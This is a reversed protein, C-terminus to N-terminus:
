AKTSISSCHCAARQLGPTMRRTISPVRGALTGSMTIVSRLLRLAIAHDLQLLKPAGIQRYRDARQRVHIEGRKLDINQWCLGRLESARLGTFIATLLLPRWHGQLQAIIARIEEPTPIDVGMKLKRKQRQAIRADQRRLAGTAQVVNQMVLGRGQADALISGLVLVMRRTTEASRGESRLKDAFDRVMPASFQSLKISGIFPIIHRHLFTQCGELSSRELGANERGVLWKRGAEAITISQSDPVHIGARVNHM